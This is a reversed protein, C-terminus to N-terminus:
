YNLDVGGGIWTAQTPGPAKFKVSNITTQLKTVLEDFARTPIARVKWKVVARSSTDPGLLALERISDDQESSVHREYVDLYFLVSDVAGALKLAASDITFSSGNTGKPDGQITEWYGAKPLNMCRIGDVYYQGWRLLYTDNEQPDSPLIQFSDNVGGHAGILDRALGRLFRLLSETNENFDRDLQVRGQQFLVRSVAESYNFPDWSFDGQM